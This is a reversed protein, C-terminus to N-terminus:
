PRHVLTVKEDRELRHYGNGIPYVWIGPPVTDIRTVMVGQGTSLLVVDGERLDRAYVSRMM